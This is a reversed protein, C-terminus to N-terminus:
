LGLVLRLLCIVLHLIWQDYVGIQFGVFLAALSNSALWISSYSFAAPEKNAQTNAMCDNIKRHGTATGKIRIENQLSSIVDFIM